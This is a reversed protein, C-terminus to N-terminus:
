LNPTRRRHRRSTAEELLLLIHKLDSDLGTPQQEELDVVREVTVYALSLLQDPDEPDFEIRLLPKM